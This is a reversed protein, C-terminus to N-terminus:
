CCGGAAYQRRQWCLAVRHVYHRQQLPLHHQHLPGGGRRCGRCYQHLLLLLLLLLLTLQQKMEATAPAAVPLVSSGAQEVLRRPLAPVHHEHLSGGGHRCGRSYQHLLLLLFLVLLLLTLQQEMEATAPAAVPLM